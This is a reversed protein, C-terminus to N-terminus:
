EFEDAFLPQCEQDPCREFAGMDPASTRSRPDVTAHKVYQLDVPFAAAADALPGGKDIVPSTSLLSFDQAALDRFGPSIGEINGGFDNVQGSLYDHSDVWGSSFWNNRIDAIGDEDLLALASGGATAYFINNRIDAHEDNTSLRMLTTNGTRTSVVTNHYFYLMGKRYIDTNGSDGGYHLIQSNGAGDPEILVNGYVFTRDYSPDNVVVDSDEADVLDLQRNGSEIWNYRVVLGASRDKLNNGDAGARLPGLYNYQYVMGIASTYTNHQYISGDIGNDYIRNGEVLIDRTEGDFAGIFLGNGSDRLICNRITLHQAVEVYISAANSSYSSVSGNDGTFSYAPRGSRIDLNEIIVYQPPAEDPNLDGGFKVVGRSENWFSVNDPTVADRGDIVPLEGTSGPVGSIIVPRDATGRASIIWKEKYPDARWHIYVHDGAQLDPWPVEAIASLPQGPGVHYDAAYLVSSFLLGALGLPVKQLM